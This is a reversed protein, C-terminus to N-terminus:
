RAGLWVSLAGLLAAAVVAALMQGPTSLLFDIV